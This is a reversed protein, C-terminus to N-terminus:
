LCAPLCLKLLFHAHEQLETLKMLPNSNVFYVHWIDIKKYFGFLYCNFTVKKQITYDIISSLKTISLQNSCIDHVYGVPSRWVSQNYLLMIYLIECHLLSWLSLPDITVLNYFGHDNDCSSLTPIGTM